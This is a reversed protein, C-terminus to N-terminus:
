GVWLTGRDPATAKQMWLLSMCEAAWIGSAMSRTKAAALSRASIKSRRPCGPMTPSIRAPTRIPGCTSPQNAGQTYPTRIGDAHAYAHHRAALDTHHHCLDPEVQARDTVVDVAGDDEQRHGGRQNSRWEQLQGEGRGSLHFPFDDAQTSAGLLVPRRAQGDAPCSPRNAWLGARYLIPFTVLYM